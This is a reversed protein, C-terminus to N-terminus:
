AEDKLLFGFLFMCMFSYSITYGFNKSMTPINSFYLFWYDYIYKYICVFLSFLRVKDLHDNAIEEPSSIKGSGTEDHSNLNSGM